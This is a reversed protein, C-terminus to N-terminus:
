TGREAVHIARTSTRQVTDVLLASFMEHGSNRHYYLGVACSPAVSRGDIVYQADGGSRCREPSATM